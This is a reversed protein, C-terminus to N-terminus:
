AAAASLERDRREAAKAADYAAYIWVAPALVFGVLFLVSIGAVFFAVIVALGKELERNYLQGLGPFLASLVAAVFPNGGGTLEEVASDVSSKPPDRQRVGCEPCIEANASIVSGCDRCFVEDPGRERKEGSETSSESM